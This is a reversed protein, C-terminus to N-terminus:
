RVGWRVGRAQRPLQIGKKKKKGRKKKRALVVRPPSAEGAGIKGGLFADAKYGSWVANSGARPGAGGRRPGGAGAPATLARANTRFRRGGWGAGNDGDLGLIAASIARRRGGPHRGAVTGAWKVLPARRRRITRAPKGALHSLEAAGRSFDTSEGQMKRKGVVFSRPTRGGFPMGWSAAPGHAGFGLRGV